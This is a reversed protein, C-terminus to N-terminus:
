LIGHQSKENIVQRMWGFKLMMTRENLSARSCELNEFSIDQRMRM